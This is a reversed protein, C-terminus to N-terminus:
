NKLDYESFNVSKTRRMYEMTRGPYNNTISGSPSKYWSQEIGSWIMNDLRKQLETHYSSLIAEKVEMSKNETKNLMDICQAIYNAQSESMIIISNHGLNTNPGYMMFFNPFKDTMIGLYTKPGDKWHEKITIGNNGRIDLGLLFPNTKFGTAYILVDLDYEQGDNSVVSRSKIEKVGASNITVNEKALTSYYTDSFLVRKAGMPYAPTLIKILSKDKIHKKIFDISKRQYFKRLLGNGKTMLFYLAGGLMWIKLRYLRLLFPIKAVLTKEWGRYARDQKPLMWNSSRQFIILESAEKAVEPILQVASAANGIIGVTKGHLSVDHNWQASHWSEGTYSDQGLISPTSPHHLQGIASIVTKCKFSQDQKTQLSWISTIDDWSATSLEQEFLIHSHLNYKDAVHNIYELIQPQMSWKYKWKPYPEFSYSYLASPIDCEAGPYTNERWTGGIASAKELIIFDNIGKNLLSIGMAIGSFGTGIIISTYVHSTMFSILRM